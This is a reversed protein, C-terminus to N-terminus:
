SKSSSRITLRRQNKNLKKNLSVKRKFTNRMLLKSKKKSQRKKRNKSIMRIIKKRKKMLVLQTERSKM